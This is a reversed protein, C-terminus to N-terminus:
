HLQKGPMQKNVLKVFSTVEASPFSPNWAMCLKVKINEKLPLFRISDTSEMCYDKAILTIGLGTRVMAVADSIDQAYIINNQNTNEHLFLPVPTHMLPTDTPNLLILTENSLEKLDIPQRFRKAFEEPIALYLESEHLINGCLPAPLADITTLLFLVQVKNKLLDSFAQNSANRNLLIHVGSHQRRYATICAPLKGNLTGQMYGICLSQSSQVAAFRVRDYLEARKHFLENAEQILVEGALTLKMSHNTREFLVASLDDELQKLQRSLAPQSIYLEQAAKSINLHKALVLFYELSKITM